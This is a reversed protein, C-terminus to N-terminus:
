VYYIELDIAPCTDWRHPTRSLARAVTAFDLSTPNLYLGEIRAKQAALVKDIDKVAAKLEKLEDAYDAKVAAPVSKQPKGDAKLWGLTSKRDGVRLEATFDGLQEKLYGVEDMGFTPVSMEELEARTVGQAKASKDLQKEILKRSTATRVKTKMLALQAVSETSTVTGIAYVCANGVKSAREGIGPLKRYASLGTSGLTAAMRDDPVFSYCWALGRLVIQNTPDLALAHSTRDPDDPKAVNIMPLWHQARRQFESASLGDIFSMATKKWKGTPKSANATACHAFLQCWLQQQEEPMSGVDDIAQKAWAESGDIPLRGLNDGVIVDIQLKRPLQDANYYPCPDVRDRAARLHERAVDSLPALEMRKEIRDLLDECLIDHHNYRNGRARDFLEQALRDMEESADKNTM